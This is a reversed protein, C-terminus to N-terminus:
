GKRKPKLLLGACFFLLAILLLVGASIYDKPLPVRKITLNMDFIVNVLSLSGIVGTVTAIFTFIAGATERGSNKQNNM